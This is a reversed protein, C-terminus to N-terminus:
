PDSPIPDLVVSQFPQINITPSLPVLKREPDATVNTLLLGIDPCCGPGPPVVM